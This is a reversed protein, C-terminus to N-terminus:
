EVRISKVRTVGDVFLLPRGILVDVYKEYVIIMLTHFSFPM